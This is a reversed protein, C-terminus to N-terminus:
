WLKGDETVAKTRYYAFGFPFVRFVSEELTTSNNKGDEGNIYKVTANGVRVLDTVFSFAPIANRQLKEFSIPSSYFTVDDQLRNINNLLFNLYYRNEEDDDGISKLIAAVALLGLYINLEMANKQLNAKDIDTLQNIGQSNYLGKTLIRAMEQVTFKFSTLMSVEEGDKTKSDTFSRYRGKINRELIVSPRESQFRNAFGEAVWNRFMLTARGLLTKKLMVAERIDYNGHVIMQVARMKLHFNNKNKGISTWNEQTETNFKDPDLVLENKDNIVYADFLNVDNNDKDKITKNLMMAIFTSGQNVFEARTTLQYPLLIKLKTQIDQHTRYDGQEQIDGLVGYEKMLIGIKLALKSQVTDLTFSKLVNSKLLWYAKTLQTENFDENGASHIYNSIFGFGLNTAASIPNWGMGKVHIYRLFLDGAKSVVLKTELSDIKQNLLEIKKVREESEPLLKAEELEKKYKDLLPKSESDKAFTKNTQKREKNVGYFNDTFYEFSKKLNALGEKESGFIGTTATGDPNIHQKEANDVLRKSIKLFDEVNAKHKYTEASVAFAMLVKDLAFEKSKLKDQIKNYKLEEFYKNFEETDLEYKELAQDKLIEKEVNTLKGLTDSLMYKPLSRKIKGTASLHTQFEDNSSIEDILVDYLEKTISTPNKLINKLVNSSRLEPIYNSQTDSDDPFYKKFKHLSDTFFNYFNLYTEDAEIKEFKSDYWGTTNGSRDFRRPVSVISDYNYFRGTNELQTNSVIDAFVFPSNQKKWEEKNEVVELQQKYEEFKKKAKEYYIEFGKEGLHSKLENIHKEKDSENFKIPREELVAYEDYFLKRYDFLITNDKVWENKKKVSKPDNYNVNYVSKIKDFYAQSFRHTYNRTKNGKSDTQLFLDWMNKSKGKKAEFEKVQKNLEKGFELINVRATESAEKIVYDVTQIFESNVTSMGRFQAQFFDSDRLRKMKDLLQDKTYNKGTTENIQKGIYDYMINDFQSQYTNLNNLKSVYYSWNNLPQNNEDSIYVRDENDFFIDKFKDSNWFDIKDLAYYIDHYSLNPKSLLEDLQQTDLTLMSMIDNFQPKNGLKDIELNTADLEKNLRNLEVPDKTNAIAKEIAEKEEKKRKLILQYQSDVSVLYDIEDSYIDNDELSYKSKIYEEKKPFDKILDNILKNFFSDPYTTVEFNNDNIKNVSVLPTNELELRYYTKLSRKSHKQKYGVPVNKRETNAILYDEFSEFFEFKEFDTILNTAMDNPMKNLLWNNLEKDSIVRCNKSM